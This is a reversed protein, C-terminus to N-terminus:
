AAHADDVDLSDYKGIGLIHLPILNNADPVFNWVHIRSLRISAAPKSAKWIVDPVPGQEAFCAQLFFGESSISIANPVFVHYYAPM